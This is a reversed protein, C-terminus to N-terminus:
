RILVARARVTGVSNKVIVEYIGSALSGLDMACGDPGVTANTTVFRLVGYADVIRITADDIARESRLVFKGTSPNPIITITPMTGFRVFRALDGRSCGAPSCVDASIESSLVQLCQRSGDRGTISDLSVHTCTSDVPYFSFLATLVTDTLTNFRIRASGPGPLGITLDRGAGDFVGHYVMPSPDFHVTCEVDSQAGTHRIVIPIAADGGITDTYAPTMAQQDFLVTADINVFPELPIDWTRGDAAVLHLRADLYGTRQPECTITIISDNQLVLSGPNPLVFSLSDPGVISVESFSLACPVQLRLSDTGTTCRTLTDAKFLETRSLTLTSSAIFVDVPVDWARGEIDVLHVSASLLGLHQPTCTVVLISDGPLSARAGSLSYSAADPGILAIATLDLPCVSRLRLTDVGGQCISLTDGAFLARPSLELPTPAYTVDVRFDWTRGDQAIVRLTTRYEGYQKTRLSISVVSDSPLVADTLSLEFAAADNGVLSLTLEDESCPSLLKLSDFILNCSYITDGSLPSFPRVITAEASVYVGIPLDFTRGDKTVLHVTADLAGDHKPTCLVRVFSDRSAFAFSEADQGEILLSDIAFPCPSILKLSDLARSCLFLTDGVFLSAPSFTVKAERVYVHLPVDWRRGDLAVIHATASLDGTRSPDCLIQLLSDSPLDATRRSPTFSGSDPGSISISSIQTFCPAELIVSDSHMQCSYITDIRSSTLPRVVLPITDAYITIPIDMTPGDSRVIHLTARLTGDRHPTCLVILSSDTPLSLQGKGILSFSLSDPGVITASTFTTACPAHFYVTDADSLCAVITDGRFLSTPAFTLPLPRVYIDLGVDWNGGEKGVFHVFAHLMGSRKPRCEVYLMSDSPLLQPRAGVLNFSAADPGTITVSAFALPCVASLLVSDLASSCFDLTDGAFLKTPKTNLPPPNVTGDLDVYVVGGDNLTLKLQGHKAGVTSPSFEIHLTDRTRPPSALTDLLTYNSANPGIIEASVAWRPSCQGVALTVFRIVPSDCPSLAVPQFLHQGKVTLQGGPSSPDTRWISGLTDIVYVLSDDVAFISHSDVDPVPSPMPIWSVGKDTSRLLGVSEQGVFYDHCGRTSNGKIDTFTGLPVSHTTQWSVGNDTTQFLRSLNGTRFAWNENVIVAVKPDSGDAILTNCDNFGTPTTATWTAGHDSSSYLASQGVLRFTSDAARVIYGPSPVPTRQTSVGLTVRTVGSWDTLVLFKDPAGDYVICHGSSTTAVQRWTKGQDATCFAGQSSTVYAFHQADFIDVDGIWNIPPTTLQTWTVGYDTSLMLNGWAALIVSDQAKIAGYEAPSRLSNRASTLVNSALLKWKVTQGFSDSQEVLLLLLLLLSAPVRKM